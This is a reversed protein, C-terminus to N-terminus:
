RRARALPDLGGEALAPLARGPALGDEALSVDYKARVEEPLRWIRSMMTPVLYMWTGKHEDVAALTKEADFRPLM